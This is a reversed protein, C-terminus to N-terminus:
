REQPDILGNRVAFRLLAALDPVGLKHMLRSRYTDVTKPSLHLQEGIAASSAGRVVMAIIQRERPSLSALPDGGPAGSLAQVALEAVESGLHRRGQAVGDIARLLEASPSGKLVYGAAGLRLAEAVHHPQASMTLVISRTPLERRQLETLLEFGSRDGLSLDLLLVGPQLRQLEGLATVPHDSEGVVRHGATELVARLGERLIHHDDVLYIDSM